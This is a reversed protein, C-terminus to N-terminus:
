RAGSGVSAIDAFTRLEVGERRLAEAVRADCLLEVEQEREIDYASGTDAGLGPHCALETVGPKLGRIIEIVTDATLAEPIPNGKPDHGYLDGCYEVEGLHHRLPVGVESAVRVFTETMRSWAHVHQHSDMHTPDRGMLERFTALQRRVEAEVAAPDATPVVEYVMTWEGNRQAWECLDVHLGVGLSPTARAYAAAEAAAPYRVMMSASTVIGHEHAHAIGSNVGPSLGFDDANVILGRAAM